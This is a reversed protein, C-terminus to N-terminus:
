FLPTSTTSIEDVWADKWVIEIQKTTESLTSLSSLSSSSSSPTSSSTNFHGPISNHQTAGVVTSFSLHTSRTWIEGKWSTQKQNHHCYLRHHWHVLHPYNALIILFMLVAFFVPVSPIFCYFSWFNTQSPSGQGCHFLKIEWAAEIQHRNSAIFAVLIYWLSWFPTPSNPWM